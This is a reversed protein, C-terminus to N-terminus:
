ETVTADDGEATALAVYNGGKGKAVYVARDARDLAEQPDVDEQPSFTAVGISATVAEETYGLSRGVREVRERVLEGVHRIGGIDTGVLVLVFEDGGYRAAVDTKRVVKSIERGVAQLLKNGAAHGHIDNVLKFRDLDLFLVGFPEGNRQSRWIEQALRDKLVRYTSLGTLEDTAALLSAEAARREQHPPCQRLTARRKVHARAFDVCRSYGCAGCDWHAGGPATGIQEIVTEIEHPMPSVGNSAAEFEARVPVVVDPNLVSVESRPPEAEAAIERRRYLEERPGLLPHDLCGECPLIDIFGLDVKDVAVARALVDLSGLGRVKRFRRSAHPEDMLVPLPMGGSTSLHRQRVEPIRDFYREQSGITVGRRELLGGLEEFTISADVVGNGEPICVGAYVVSVDGQEARIYGAEAALPTTVPALYPVLEPYEHRIQEVIVPCTSRILTGWAPDALLAAYEESVLEDGLVGRHVTRFGAEYCANVVQEPAYPHFHVEAEVSLVLVSDGGRALGIARELDGVVDIAGHPCAPVCAGVRICAEDVISVTEGDVAIAQSPCVRVCALCAVCKENIQFRM